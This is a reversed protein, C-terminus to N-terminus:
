IRIEQLDPLLIEFRTQASLVFFTKHKKMESIVDAVQVQINRVKM